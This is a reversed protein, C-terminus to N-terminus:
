FLVLRFFYQDGWDFYVDAWFGVDRGSLWPNWNVLDTSYDLEWNMPAPWSGFVGMGYASGDGDYYIETQLPVIPPVPVTYSVEASIPSNMGNADVASVAFYYTRGPELGSIYDGNSYYSTDFNTYNGSQTGYYVQYEVINEEPPAGDWGLWGSQTGGLASLATACLLFVFARLIAFRRVGFFKWSLSRVHFVDATDCV